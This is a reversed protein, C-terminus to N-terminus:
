LHNSKFNIDQFNDIGEYGIDWGKEIQTLSVTNNEAVSGIEIRGGVTSLFGGEIAVDGGILALTQDEPVRLGVLNDVDFFSLNTIPQPQANFQLGIPINITLLPNTQTDTASYEFGDSFIVSDATTAIFSGGVNLSANEGFIIGNPNILFLNATGSTQIIGDIQSASSGTIRSFINSIDVTNNFSATIDAPISFQEFSHFLNTGARTGGTIQIINGQTNVVSNEPLTNDPIVQANTHQTVLVSFLISGNFLWVNFSQKM